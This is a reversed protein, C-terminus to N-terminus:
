EAVQPHHLQVTASGLTAIRELVVEASALKDVIVCGALENEIDRGRFGVMAVIGASENLDNLRAKRWLWPDADFLVVTRKTPQDVVSGGAVEVWSRWCDALPRDHSDIAVFIGSLDPFKAAGRTAGFVDARTATLPLDIELDLRAPALSVPVRVALPWQTRTRGDSECWPGHCCVLRALPFWAVLANADVASFQDSWSQCVLVLDPLWDGADKIRRVDRLDVARRIDPLPAHARLWDRIPSSDASDLDGVILINQSDRM